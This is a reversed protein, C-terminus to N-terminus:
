LNASRPEQIDSGEWARDIPVVPTPSVGTAPGRNRRVRGADSVKALQAPTGHQLGGAMGRNGGTRTPSGRVLEPEFTRRPVEWQLERDVREADAQRHLSVGELSTSM